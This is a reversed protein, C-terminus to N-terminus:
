IEFSLLINEQLFSFKAITRLEVLLAVLNVIQFLSYLLLILFGKNNSIYTHTCMQDDWKDQM